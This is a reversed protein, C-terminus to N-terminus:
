YGGFWFLFVLTLLFILIIIYDYIKINTSYYSYRKVPAEAGRTIASVSLEDAVNLSRMLLPVVLYEMYVAPNKWARLKNIGRLKMSEKIIRIESRITPGFRFAVVVMLTITNPIHIKQLVSVIEGPPTMIILQIAMFIPIMKWIMYFYFESFILENCNVLSNVLLLSSLLVFFSIHKILEKVYGQALYLCLLLVFLIISSYFSPVSFPGLITSILIVFKDLVHIKIKYKYTNSM